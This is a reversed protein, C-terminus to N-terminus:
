KEGRMAKLSKIFDSAADGPAAHDSKTRWLLVPQPREPARNLFVFMEGFIFPEDPSFSRHETVVKYVIVFDAEEVSEVATLGRYERAYKEIRKSVLDYAYEHRPAPRMGEFVESVVARVPGRTDVSLSRSVVLLARRKDRLEALEGRPVEDEGDGAQASVRAPMGPPLLLLAFLLAAKIANRTM